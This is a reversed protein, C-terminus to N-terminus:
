VAGVGSLPHWGYGQDGWGGSPTWTTRIAGSDKDRGKDDKGFGFRSIWDIIYACPVQAKGVREHMAPLRADDAAASGWVRHPNYLCWLMVSAAVAMRGYRLHRPLPIGGQYGGDNFHALLMACTKLRKGVDSMTVFAHTMKQEDSTGKILYDVYDVGIIKPPKPLTAAIQAARAAVGEADLRELGKYVIIRDMVKGPPNYLEEIRGVFEDDPMEFSFAISYEGARAQAVMMAIMLTTKGIKPLGAITLLGAEPIGPLWEDITKWHSPQFHALNPKIKSAPAFESDTSGLRRAASALIAPDVDEGRKLKRGAIELSDGVTYDTYARRLLELLDGGLAWREAALKVVEVSEYGFKDLLLTEADDGPKSKLLRAMDNMPPAFMEPQLAARSLTGELVKGM